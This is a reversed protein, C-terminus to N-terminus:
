EPNQEPKPAASKRYFTTKAGAKLREVVSAARSQAAQAMLARRAVTPADVASLPANNVATIKMIQTTEASRVVVNDNQSYAALQKRIAEPFAEAPQVAPTVKFEVDQDKLVQKLASFDRSEDFLPTMQAESFADSSLTLVSFTYIRRKRFLEPNGAIFDDIEERTPEPPQSANALYIDALAQEQARAMQRLAEPERHLGAERAADALVARTIIAQLAAPEATEDNPSLGLRAMESRLDIITIERSDLKAVVQTKGSQTKAREPAAAASVGGCASACAMILLLKRVFVM